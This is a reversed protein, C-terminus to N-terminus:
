KRKAMVNPITITGASTTKVWYSYGPVLNTAAVTNHEMLGWVTGTIQPNAAKLATITPSTEYGGILNWSIGSPNPQTSGDNNCSLKYTEAVTNKM